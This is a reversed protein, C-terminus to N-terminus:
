LLNGERFIIERAISAIWRSSGTPNLTFSLSFESHAPRRERGCCRACCVLRRNAAPSRVPGVLFWPVSDYPQEVGTLAKAVVGSQDSANQVSELRITRGDAYPNAHAACDGIAFVDPLSTRGLSDVTVGNDGCAGATLLPMVNPVIGIGVIVMECPVVSGDVLRVGSVRAGREVVCDVAIGTRLDVGRARHESEYFRSLPEGAVRALVRNQAELVTVSKGLKTLVAATELGIYGGGIVVFAISLRFSPM